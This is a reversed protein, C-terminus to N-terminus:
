VIVIDSRGPRQSQQKDAQDARSAAQDGKIKCRWKSSRRVVQATERDQLGLSTYSKPQTRDCNLNIKLTRCMDPWVIWYTYTNGVGAHTDKPTPPWYNGLKYRFRCTTHTPQSEFETTHDLRSLLFGIAIGIRRWPISRQSYRHPISLVKSRSRNCRTGLLYDWRPWILLNTAHVYFITGKVM